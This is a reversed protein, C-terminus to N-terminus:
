RTFRLRLEKLGTKVNMHEDVQQFGYREYFARGVRNDEFVNLELIPRMSRAHDMLVRGIGQSHYNPDVFLGGVENGILAIFGVVVDDQEFIWTEAEPLYVERIRQREQEFFTRDLFPHGVLSASYWVELLQSLDTDRYPRIM